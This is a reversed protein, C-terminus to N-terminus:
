RAEYVDYLQFWTERLNGRCDHFAAAINANSIRSREGDNLLRRLLELALELSTESHWLDPLGAPGHATVLLGTGWQRCWRLLRRRAFWGLQEYGDVIVQTASNGSALPLTQLPFRRQGSRLVVLRISRGARQLEPMLSQLLTSKGSGHPGIIQGYWRHHRLRHVLRAANMDPPFVFELAGPRVYRTAFPNRGSVPLHGPRAESCCPALFSNFRDIPM